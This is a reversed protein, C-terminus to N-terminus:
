GPYLNDFIIAQPAFTSGKEVKDSDAVRIFIPHTDPTAWIIGDIDSSSGMFSM